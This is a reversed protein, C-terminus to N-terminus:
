HKRYNLKNKRERMGVSSLSTFTSNGALSRSMLRYNEPVLLLSTLWSQWTCPLWNTTTPILKLLLLPSDRPELTSCTSTSQWLWPLLCRFPWLALSFAPEGPLFGFFKAVVNASFGDVNEIKDLGHHIM